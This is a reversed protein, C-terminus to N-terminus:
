SVVDAENRTGQVSDVISKEEDGEPQEAVRKTKQDFRMSVLNSVGKEQMMVGYITDAASITRKNHTIVIFQSYNTFKQVINTFRGVNADDLPADLEDLMCFPSPKVMYIAFLLAVATMTKQGGSLLALTKLKTGPPRATIEIGSELVDDTDILALDSYGGGFLTEFTYKFNKRVQEFTDRFLEQSTHNIEDIAKLLEEKSKWLDESQTTLFEHREKLEAYEAISEINVPGMSHLRTRLAEVEQEIEKFDTEAIKALDEETPDSEPGLPIDESPDEEEIDVKIRDPLAEGAEWLERKWNIESIETEYERRTDEVVFNRQTQQRALKVETQNLASEKEHLAKREGSLGDELEKIVREVENLQEREVKLSGSTVDLTKEIEAAKAKNKEADEKFGIVQADIEYIEQDRQQKRQNLQQTQREVEGLARDIMELRQKKEALELRVENLSERAQEREDRLSAISQEATEIAERKDTIKGESEKLEAQAQELRQASKERSAELNAMERGAFEARKQNAEAKSECSRVQERLTSLEEAIETIRGRKDEIDQEADDMKQQLEDAKDRLASLQKEGKAQEKKLKKIHNARQLFSESTKKEAGGFVLGRRDILEGGATAVLQFDFDPNDRWYDLFQSLDKAFYCGELLGGLLASHSDDKATVLTSASQLFEPLDSYTKYTTYSRNAENVALCARGAKTRRLESTADSINVGEGVLIADVAPGMLAEFAATYDADVNLQQSLLTVANKPLIEGLKGQLIAKAGESFGEFKQQLGELVGVEAIHTAVIRDMDQIGRQLDKFDALYKASDDKLKKLEDDAKTKDQERKALTKQLDAAEQKLVEAEERLQQQEDALGSHKVQYTKLDVELTTCNSRSRTIASELMLLDQKAQQIAVEAESLKQQAVTVAQSREKFVKDSDDFLDIQHQKAQADGAARDSLESRQQEIQKLEAELKERRESLDQARIKCFEAKSEANEKESRLSFVSQQIEQLSAFLESRTARRQELNAERSSLAETMRSVERSLHTKEIELEQIGNLIGTYKWSRYGLDLHTLRHKIRKYRLAKSAQRKLSGIQRSVEEIVDTVRALNTDVKELKLLAERRQMKYKSIGAAEEFITRREAPNSSLIQDIQGQVMFSYSVRGVGTDMFLNHIDKLRSRKGNLFYDSGGDRTVRRIIEVEAYATGLQEECDTFVLAVECLGLQKRKDTGQFIVDQMSGARLSKASQEGLVWRIADAINSKGCGNPGVIATIGPSLDLRTKDAFSKFGQIRLEKLYM